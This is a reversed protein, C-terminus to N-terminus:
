HKSNIQGFNKINVTEPSFVTLHKSPKRSFCFGMTKQCHWSKDARSFNEPNRRPFKRNDKSMKSLRRVDGTTNPIRRCDEPIKTLRRFDESIISFQQVIVSFEKIYWVFYYQGKQFWWEQFFKVAVTFTESNPNFHWFRLQKKNSKRRFIARCHSHFTFVYVESFRLLNILCVEFITFPVPM